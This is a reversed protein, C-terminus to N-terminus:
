SPSGLFVVLPSTCPTHPCALVKKKEWPGSSHVPIKRWPPRRCSPDVSLVKRKKEVRAPVQICKSAPPDQTPDHTRLRSGFSDLNLYSPKKRRSISTGLACLDTLLNPLVCRDLNCTWVRFSPVDTTSFNSKNAQSRAAGIWAKHSRGAMPSLLETHNNEAIIARGGDLWIYIYLCTEPRAPKPSCTNMVAMPKFWRINQSLHRPWFLTQERKKLASGKSLCKRKQAPLSGTKGHAFQSGAQSGVGPVLHDMGGRPQLEASVKLLQNSLPALPVCQAEPGRHHLQHVQPRWPLGEGDSPEGRSTPEYASVNRTRPAGVTPAAELEWPNTHPVTVAQQNLLSKPWGGRPLSVM